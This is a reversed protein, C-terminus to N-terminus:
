EMPKGLVGGAKNVAELALKAGNLAFRGGDAGPGPVPLVMGGKRAAGGRAVASRLVGPMGFSAAGAGAALGNLVSRRTIAMSLGGQDGGNGAINRPNSVCHRTRDM